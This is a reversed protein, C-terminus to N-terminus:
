FTPTSWRPEYMRTAWSNRCPAIDYGQELLHTAFSHRLTHCTARKLLGAKEVARKFAKQLISEDIHHRGEEGTRSNRWRNDQPFAWQWRRDKPANPYKRGLADPLMVRGWGDAWDRELVVKVRKLHERLQSKLSEPLMTIRDKPVRATGSSSKTARSTLM